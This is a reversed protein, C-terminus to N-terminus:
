PDPMRALSNASNCRSTTLLGVRERWSYPSTRSMSGPPPAERDIQGIADAVHFLRDIAYGRDYRGVAVVTVSAARARRFFASRGDLDVALGALQHVLAAREALADEAAIELDAIRRVGCGAAAVRAVDIESTVEDGLVARRTALVDM